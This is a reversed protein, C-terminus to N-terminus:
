TGSMNKEIDQPSIVPKPHTKQGKMYMDFARKVQEVDSVFM